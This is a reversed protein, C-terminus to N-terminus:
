KHNLFQIATVNKETVLIPDSSTVDENEAIFNLAVQYDIKSWNEQNM